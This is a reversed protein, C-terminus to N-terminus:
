IVLSHQRVSLCLDALLSRNDPSTGAPIYREYSPGFNMQYNSEVLWNQMFREWAVLGIGRAFRARFIAYTGAPIQQFDVVHDSQVDDSVAVGVDYRTQAYPTIFQDDWGICILPPKRHDLGRAELWQKLQSFADLEPAGYPGLHRIYAVRCSPREIVKVAERIALSEQSSLRDSEPREVFDTMRFVNAHRFGSPSILFRSRFARALSQSSGFGCSHAIGTISVDRHYVLRRAARELRIRQLFHGPTEGIISEFVRLFHYKSLYAVSALESLTWQHDCLRQVRNVVRHIRNRVIGERKRM